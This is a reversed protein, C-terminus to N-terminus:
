IYCTLTSAIDLSSLLIDRILSQRRNDIRLVQLIRRRGSYCKVVWACGGAEDKMSDVKGRDRWPQCDLAEQCM